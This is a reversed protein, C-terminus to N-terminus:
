RPSWGKKREIWFKSLTDAYQIKFNETGGDARYFSVQQSSPLEKFDSTSWEGCIRNGIVLKCCCSGCQYEPQSKKGCIRTGKKIPDVELQCLRCFIQETMTLAPLSTLGQIVMLPKTLPDDHTSSPMSAAESSPTHAGWMTDDFDAAVDPQASPVEEADSAGLVLLPDMNCFSVRVPHPPSVLM